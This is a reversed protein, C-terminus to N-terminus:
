NLVHEYLVLFTLLGLLAYTILNPILKNSFFKLTTGFSGKGIGYIGDLILHSAYGLVVGSALWLRPQVPGTFLLFTLQGAIIAAPTSHFMGRHVAFSTIIKGLVFRIFLYILAAVLLMTPLEAVHQIALVSVFVAAFSLVERQSRSDIDMDPLMGSAGCLGGSLISVPLGMGVAYSTVGFGVGIAGSVAIHTKFNAM